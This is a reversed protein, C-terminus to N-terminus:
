KSYILPIYLTNIKLLKNSFIVLTLNQIVVAIGTAIAAGLFGFYDILVINLVIAIVVVALTVYMVVKQHGTMNLIVGVSGSTANILQGIALIILTIKGEKFEEGFFGLLPEALLVIILFLPFSLWFIFKSNTRVMEALDEREGSWFLKSLKPALITNVGVLVFSILFALKLCVAFIGVMATDLFFQIMYLSINGAFYSSLTVVMMPSSTRILEKFDLLKSATKKIRRLFSFIIGFSSLSLLLTAGVLAYVPTWVDESRYILIVTLCVSPILLSRFTESLKIKNFGRLYEVNILHLTYFPAILGVIKLIDGKDPDNFLTESLENSFVVLVISIILSTAFILRLAYFYLRKREYQEEPRFYQGVYRLISTNLGFSAVHSYVIMTTLTLSYIGIGVPGFFNSVVISFLYGILIGIGKFLVVALSGRVIDKNNEKFLSQKLKKIM